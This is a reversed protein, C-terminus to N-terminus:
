HLSFTNRLPEKGKKFNLPLGFTLYFAGSGVVEVSNCQPVQFSTKGELGIHFGRAWQQQWEQLLM